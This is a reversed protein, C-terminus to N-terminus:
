ANQHFVAWIDQIIYTRLFNYTINNMDVCGTPFSNKRYLFSLMRIDCNIECNNMICARTLLCWSINM